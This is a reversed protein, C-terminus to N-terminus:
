RGVSQSHRKTTRSFYSESPNINNPALLLRVVRRIIHIKGNIELFRATQVCNEQHINEHFICYKQLNTPNLFAMGVSYHM